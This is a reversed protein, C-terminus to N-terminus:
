YKKKIYLIPSVIDGNSYYGEFESEETLRDFTKTIVDNFAYADFLKDTYSKTYRHRSDVPIFNEQGFKDYNLYYGIYIAGKKMMPYCNNLVTSYEPLHIKGLFHNLTGNSDIIADVSGKKFPINNWPMSAFLVKKNIGFSELIEKIGYFLRHEPEVSCYISDDHIEEIILRMIYGLYSGTEVILQQKTPDIGIYPKAWEIIKYHMDFFDPPMKTIYDHLFKKVMDPLEPEHNQITYADHLIGNDIIYRNGCECTLTGNIIQDNLLENSNLSLDGHCMPCGFFKLVQLPVGIKQIEKQQFTKIGEKLDEEQKNINSIYSQLQQINHEHEIKKEQLMHNYFEYTDVSDINYMRKYYFFMRMERLKFGHNKMENVLLMDNHCKEDFEYLSGHKIPMLLGMDMYHRIADITLNYQKAFAGIKM